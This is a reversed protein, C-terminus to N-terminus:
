VACRGGIGVVSTVLRFHKQIHENERLTAEMQKDTHAIQEEVLKLQKESEKIIFSNDVLSTTAKLDTIAQKLSVKTKTLRNRFAMLNKLTLLCASPLQVPALKCRHLCAFETIRRADTRDDSASREQGQYNGFVEELAFSKGLYLGAAIRAFFLM